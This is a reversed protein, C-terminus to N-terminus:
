TRDGVRSRSHDRGYGGVAGSGPSVIEGREVTWDGVRSRSHDRGHRAAAGVNGPSLCRSKCPSPSRLRNVSRRQEEVSTFSTKRERDYTGKWLMSSTMKQQM